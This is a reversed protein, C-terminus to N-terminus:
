RPLPNAVATVPNWLYLRYGAPRQSRGWWRVAHPPVREEALAYHANLWQEFEPWAQLKQYSGTDELFYGSVVIFVLPPKAEVDHLFRQRSTEVV